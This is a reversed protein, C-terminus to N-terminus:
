YSTKLTFIKKARMYKGNKWAFKTSIPLLKDSAPKRNIAKTRSKKNKKELLLKINNNDQNNSNELSKVQPSNLLVKDYVLKILVM